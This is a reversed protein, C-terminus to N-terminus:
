AAKAAAPRKTVPKKVGRMATYIQRRGERNTLIARGPRSHFRGAKDQSFLRRLQTVSVKMVWATEQITLYEADPDAPEVPLHYVKRDDM